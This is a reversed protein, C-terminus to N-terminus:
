YPKFKAFILIPSERNILIYNEESGTTVQKVYYTTESKLHNRLEVHAIWNHNELVKFSSDRSLIKLDTESIKYYSIFYRDGTFEDLKEETSLLELPSLDHDLYDKLQLERSNTCSLVSITAILLLLRFFNRTKM